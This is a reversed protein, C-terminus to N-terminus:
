IRIYKIKEVKDSECKWNQITEEVEQFKNKNDTTITLRNNLGREYKFRHECKPCKCDKSFEYLEKSYDMKGENTLGYCVRYWLGNYKGHECGKNLM